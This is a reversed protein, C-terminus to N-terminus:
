ADFTYRAFNYDSQGPYLVASPFDPRNPADPWDTLQICVGESDSVDLASAFVAAVPKNTEINLELGSEPDSLTCAPNCGALPFCNDLSASSVPKPKRFDFSTGRADQPGCVPIGFADNKLITSANIRLLQKFASGPGALNWFIHNCLGYITPVTTTAYYEVQFGNSLLTFIARVDLAGPYGQDGDPSFLSMEIVPKGAVEKVGAKWSRQHFANLGGHFHHPGQNADLVFTRGELTFKAGSISRSFRGMTAGLMFRNRDAIQYDQLAPLSLTVSKSKGSIPCPVSVDLVAAGFDSLTIAYGEDNSVHYTRVSQLDSDAAFLVTEDVRIRSTM